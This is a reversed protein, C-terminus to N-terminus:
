TLTTGVTTPHPACDRSCLRPRDRRTPYASGQVTDLTGLVAGAIGFAVIAWNKWRTQPPAGAAALHALRSCPPHLSDRQSAPPQSAPSLMSASLSPTNHGAFHPTLTHAGHLQQRGCVGQQSHAGADRISPARVIRLRRATAWVGIRAIDVCVYM